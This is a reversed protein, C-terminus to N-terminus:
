FGRGAQKSLHVLQNRLEEAKDVSLGPLLGEAGMTGSGGTGATFIKLTSLGLIRDIIGRQINVNQIREYPITVYKKSIIGFEKRFGEENLEYHYYKYSLKALVFSLVIILLIILLIALAILPFEAIAALSSLSIIIIFFISRFMFSLWTAWVSKPDLNQLGTPKIDLQPSQAQQAGPQSYQPQPTHPQPAGAPPMPPQDSGSLGLAQNIDAEMWGVALLESKIEEKSKGKQTQKAVYDSLQPNIM